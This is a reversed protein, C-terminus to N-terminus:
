CTQVVNMKKSRFDTASFSMQIRFFTGAERLGRVLISPRENHGTIRPYRFNSFGASEVLLNVTM